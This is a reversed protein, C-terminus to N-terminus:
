RKGAFNLGEGLTLEYSAGAKFGDPAYVTFSGDGNDRVDVAVPDSGDKPLVTINAKVDEVDSFEGTIDFSVDAPQNDLSFSTINLQEKSEVPEYVAKLTIDSSIVETLPYYVDGNEMEWNVFVYNDKAPTPIEGKYPYGDGAQVPEIEGAGM